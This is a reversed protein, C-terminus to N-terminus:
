AAIKAHPREAKSSESRPLSLSGCFEQLHDAV